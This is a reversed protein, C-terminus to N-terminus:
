VNRSLNITYLLAYLTSVTLPVSITALLAPTGALSHIVTLLCLSILFAALPPLAIRLPGTTRGFITEIISKLFLTITATIAGQVLGAILPAPMPYSRNAFAAWSGMLLFGGAGHLTKSRLLSM